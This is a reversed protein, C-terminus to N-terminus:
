PSDVATGCDDARVASREAPRSSTCYLVPASGQPPFLSEPPLSEPQSRSLIGQLFKEDAGLRQAAARGAGSEDWHSNQLAQVFGDGSVQFEQCARSLPNRRWIVANRVGSALFEPPSRRIGLPALRRYGPEM